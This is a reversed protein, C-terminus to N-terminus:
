ASEKTEVYIHFVLMGGDLLLSGIHEAFDPVSGGTGVVHLRRRVPPQRTDVEAWVMIMGNQEAAHLFRADRPMSVDNVDAPLPYKYITRVSV